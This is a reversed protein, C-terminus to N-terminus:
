QTRRFLVAIDGAKRRAIRIGLGLQPVMIQLHVIHDSLEYTIHHDRAQFSDLPIQTIPVPVPDVTNSAVHRAVSTSTIWCDQIM